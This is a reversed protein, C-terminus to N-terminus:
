IKNILFDGVKMKEIIGKKDTLRGQRRKEKIKISANIELHLMKIINTRGLKKIQKSSNIMEM